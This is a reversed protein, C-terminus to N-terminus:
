NNPAGNCIWDTITQLQAATFYPGGRPMREGMCMHIGELKELLYSNGPDGPAVLLRHDSCESGPKGVIAAYPWSPGLGGHCLEGGCHGILPVVDTKYSVSSGSCTGGDPGGGHDTTCATLALLLLWRM